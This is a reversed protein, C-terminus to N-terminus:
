RWDSLEVFGGRCAIEVSGDVAWNESTAFILRKDRKQGIVTTHVEEPMPQSNDRKAM